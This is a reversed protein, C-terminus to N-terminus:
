SFLTSSFVVLLLSALGAGMMYARLNFIIVQKFFEEVVEQHRRRVVCLKWMPLVIFAFVISMEDCTEDKV